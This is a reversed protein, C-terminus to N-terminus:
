LWSLGGVERERIEKRRWGKRGDHRGLLIETPVLVRGHHTMSKAAKQPHGANRQPRTRPLPCRILMLFPAAHRRGLSSTGDEGDQAHAHLVRVCTKATSEM